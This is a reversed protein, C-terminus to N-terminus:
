AEGGLVRVSLREAITWPEEDGLFVVLSAAGLTGDLTSHRRGEDCFWHHVHLWEAGCLTIRAVVNLLAAGARLHVCLQRCWGKTFHCHVDVPLDALASVIGEITPDPDPSNSNGQPHTSDPM